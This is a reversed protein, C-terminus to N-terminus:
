RALWDRERLLEAFRTGMRIYAAANPHLGDHLDAVEDSHFLARGDLYHLTRDTRARRSTLQQLLDRVVTATLAGQAIDEPNGVAHHRGTAPDQVTPGPRDEAPSPIPSIVVIPTDPHGERITDLFGHVAPVFTRQRMAAQGILNAGIKLTILDAPLDRIVRAVFPDLMAQGAFGLNTSHVDAAAAAVSPWTGTPGEAEVCHSISSGYHVWRPRAVEGPHTIPADATLSVLDCAASQPLWIEVDKPGAPLQTFRLTQPTGVTFRPEEGAVIHLIDGGSLAQRHSRRGDLTVEVSATVPGTGHIDMRTAHLTLEIATAQTRLALRVGANARAMLELAAPLQPEVWAPLRLPRLGRDVLRIDLAGDIRVETGPWILTETTPAM